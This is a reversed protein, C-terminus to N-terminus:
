RGTSDSASVKELDRIWINRFRVPNGHDQLSLPLRDAHAKYPPRKKWETPGSLRVGDQVLVGNHFVTMRAPRLLAGNEDFRPRRFVIDYSQWKGPPRCVNVLPPYQGYVAGAMGDAYTINNYNDLVQVEYFGMLFVGSNGRGQSEGTVKGPTAWEVHLQCDGFGAATRIIGAKKVAEMYGKEVVWGAAEGKANRWLSLDRGDFLVQADSPPAAPPMEPGPDVVPPLPRDPDHIKWKHIAKFDLEREQTGAAGAPFSLVLISLLALASFKKM